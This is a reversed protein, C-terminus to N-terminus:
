FNERFEETFTDPADAPVAPPMTIRVDGCDIQVEQTVEVTERIPEALAHDTVSGAVPGLVSGVIMAIASIIQLNTQGKTENRESVLADYMSELQNVRARAVDLDGIARNLADQLAAKEDLLRELRKLLRESSLMWAPARDEAYGAVESLFHSITM